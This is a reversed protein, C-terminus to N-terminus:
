PLEKLLQQIIKEHQKREAALQRRGPYHICTIHSVMLDEVIKHHYRIQEKIEEETFKM